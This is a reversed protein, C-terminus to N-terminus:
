DPNIAQLFYASPAVLDHRHIITQGFLLELKEQVEDESLQDLTVNELWDGITKQNEKSKIQSGIDFLGILIRSSTRCSELYSELLTQDLLKRSYEVVTKETLKLMGLLQNCEIEFRLIMYLCPKVSNKGYRYLFTNFQQEELQSTGLLIFSFYRDNQVLQFIEHMQHHLDQIADDNHLIHSEELEVDATYEDLDLYLKELPQLISLWLSIRERSLPTQNALTYPLRNLIEEASLNALVTDTNQTDQLSSKVNNVLKLFRNM